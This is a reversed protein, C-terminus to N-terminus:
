TDIAYADSVTAGTGTNGAADVYGTHNLTILNRSDTIGATPTLTATWTLGGDSSTLDSLAGHEVSFDAIDLGSVAESFTITVTSSEGAALATDAVVITATPRVTDIAYSNSATPGSGTNGAADVYGTHSLTIRNSADTIGATPTLTAIWTLGGDSSKLDSLAGNEVSFDNLELGSVAESFSITVTSSAGAALATDAVVITATPRVTDIAYSNSAAPGSGTNGAADVYGTHNLRILNRADTIGATPTLTATWTLGGNSSTLDSLAGHEVSFDAIELGSVAESFSITVTSSEGVALATDAVVITATPRVTDIAYSNSAAPGSGANGAADVYGTHSLTILNSSDTIGATPTLTATWTLGGDSST